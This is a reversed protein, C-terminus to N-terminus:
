QYINQWSTTKQHFYGNTEISTNQNRKTLTLFWDAGKEKSEIAIKERNLPSKGRRKM